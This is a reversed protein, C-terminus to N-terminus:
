AVGGGPIILVCDRRIAELRAAAEAEVMNAFGGNYNASNGGASMHIVGFDIGVVVEQGGHFEVQQTEAAYCEGNRPNGKPLDAVRTEIEQEVRASAQRLKRSLTRLTDIDEGGFPAVAYKVIRDVQGGLINGRKSM